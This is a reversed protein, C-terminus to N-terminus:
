ILAKVAESIFRQGFFSIVTVRRVANQRDPKAISKPAHKAPQGADGVFVSDDAIVNFQDSERRTTGTLADAFDLRLLL